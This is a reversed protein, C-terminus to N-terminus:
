KASEPDGKLHANLYLVAAARVLPQVDERTPSPLARRSAGVSDTFDLHKADALWNFKHAGRPWLSFGEKRNEASLGNQQRDQPGSIGLLPQKM